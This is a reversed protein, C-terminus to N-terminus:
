SERQIVRLKALRRPHRDSSRSGVLCLDEIPLCFPENHAASREAPPEPAQFAVSADVAFLRVRANLDERSVVAGAVTHNGGQADDVLQMTMAVQAEVPSPAALESLARALDQGDGSGALRSALEFLSARGDPLLRLG